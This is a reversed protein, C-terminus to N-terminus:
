RDPHLFSIFNTRIGLLWQNVSLSILCICEYAIYFFSSIALSATLCRMRLIIINHLIVHLIHTHFTASNKKPLKGQSHVAPFIYCWCKTFIHWQMAGATHRRSRKQPIHIFIKLKKDSHAKPFHTIWCLWVIPILLLM